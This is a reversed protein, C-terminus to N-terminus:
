KPWKGCKQFSRQPDATQSCYACGNLAKGDLHLFFKAHLNDPGPTKGAKLTKIAAMVQQFFNNCM